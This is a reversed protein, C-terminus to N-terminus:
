NFRRCLIVFFYRIVYKVGLPFDGFFPHPYPAGGALKIHVATNIGWCEKVCARLLNGRRGGGGVERFFKPYALILIKRYANILNDTHVFPNLKLLIYSPYNRIRVIKIMWLNDPLPRLDIKLTVAWQVESKNKTM